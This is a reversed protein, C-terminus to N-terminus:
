PMGGIFASTDDTRILSLRVGVHRCDPRPCTLNRAVEDLYVHRHNVKLLLELPTQIWMHQCRLCVCELYQYDELDNLCM